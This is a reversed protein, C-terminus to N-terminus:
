RGLFDSIILVGGVTAREAGSLILRKYQIWFQNASLGLNGADYFLGPTATPGAPTNVVVSGASVRVKM